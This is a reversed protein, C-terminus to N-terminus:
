ARGRGKSKNPTSTALEAKIKTDMNRVLNLGITRSTQTKIREKQLDRFAEEVEQSAEKDREEDSTASWAAAVVPRLRTFLLSLLTM